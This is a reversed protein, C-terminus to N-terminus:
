AKAWGSAIATSWRQTPSSSDEYPELYTLHYVICEKAEVPRKRLHYKKYIIVTTQTLRKSVRQNMCRWEPQCTDYCYKNDREQSRSRFTGTRETTIDSCQQVSYPQVKIITLRRDQYRLKAKGTVATRPVKVRIEFLGKRSHCPNAVTGSSPMVTV